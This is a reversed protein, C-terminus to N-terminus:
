RGARQAFAAIADASMAGSQRAIERGQAFLIMTPIGRINFRQAVDPAAETDLKALRFRPELRQAAAEFQPAMARCPGCWEAWFDVLVPVETRGIMRDFDAASSLEAPHGDFLPQRCKGCNPKEGAELRSLPARNVAGCHPCVITPAVETDVM